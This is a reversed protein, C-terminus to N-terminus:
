SGAPLRPSEIERATVYGELVVRNRDPKEGGIKFARDPTDHIGEIDGTLRGDSVQFRFSLHKKEPVPNVDCQDSDGRVAADEDLIEFWVPIETETSAVFHLTTWPQDYAKTDRLTRDRYRQSGVRVVAYLDAKGGRDARVGGDRKEEVHTAQVLIARRDGAFPALVPLPPPAEDSYLHATLKEHVREKKIQRVFISAPTGTWKVSFKSLYTVSGSKDGKWHGDAGEGKVWMSMNRAAEVDEELRRRQVETIQYAKLTEWYGPRAGEVWERVAEFVEHTAFYAFVYAEEWLPRIYADKNLGEHYGGHEPFDAPPPSPYPPYSGTFLAGRTAPATALWTERRYPAGAERPHAEVWNSHAYFDQVAHSFLGMLTLVALPDDTKVAETIGQRANHVLWGWYADVRTGDYLNDFHLKGLEVEVADRSTPSVSYYDTLWNAVQVIKTPVEAFEQESMVTATLDVHHGTDFASVLSPTVLLGAAVVLCLRRRM